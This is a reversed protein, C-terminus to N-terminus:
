RLPQPLSIRGAFETVSLCAFRQRETPDCRNKHQVHV